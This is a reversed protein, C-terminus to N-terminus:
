CSAAHQPWARNVFAVREYILGSRQNHAHEVKVSVMADLRQANLTALDDGQFGCRRLGELTREWSRETFFGFWPIKRGSYPGRVIEFMVVVHHSGTRATDFHAWQGNREVARAKYYGPPM